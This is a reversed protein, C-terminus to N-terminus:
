ICFGVFVDIEIQAKTYSITPTSYNYCDLTKFRQGDYVTRLGCIAKTSSNGRYKIRSQADTFIPYGGNHNFAVEEQSLLWMYGRAKSVTTIINKLDSPLKDYINTKINDPMDSGDYEGSTTVSTNYAMRVSLCNKMVFTVPATAGDSYTDYNFAAIQLQIDENTTLTVTKVDGVSWYNSLSITGNKAEQVMDNIEGWTGEAFTVTKLSVSVTFTATKTAGNETYLVTVVQEGLTNFSQPSYTYGNITQTKGSNYSATIVMGAPDFNDGKQYAMKTPMTTIEISALRQGKVTVKKMTKGTTPVITLTEGEWYATIEEEPKASKVRGLM